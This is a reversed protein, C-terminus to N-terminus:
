STRLCVRKYPADTSTLTMQRDSELKFFGCKIGMRERVLRQIDGESYPVLREQLTLRVDVEIWPVKSIKVYDSKRLNGEKADEYRKLDKELRDRSKHRGKELLDRSLFLYTTRGSSAFRHTYCMMSGGIYEFEHCHEEINKLDSANINVRTLYSFGCSKMRRTNEDLATVAFKTQTM